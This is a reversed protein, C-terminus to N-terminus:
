PCKILMVKPIGVLLPGIVQCYFCLTIIYLFIYTASWMPTLSSSGINFKEFIVQATADDGAQRPYSVWLIEGVKTNKAFSLDVLGDLMVVPVLPGKAAKTGVIVLLEQYGPLTLIM